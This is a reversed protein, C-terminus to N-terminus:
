EGGGDGAVQVERVRVLKARVHPRPSKPGYPQAAMVRYRVTAGGEEVDVEDADTSGHQEVTRLDAQTYLKRHDSARDGEPLLEAEKGNLPQVSGRIALESRTAVPRGDAGWTTPAARHVVIDGEGLM